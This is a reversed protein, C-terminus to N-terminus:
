GRCLAELAHDARERARNSAFRTRTERPGSGCLRDRLEDRQSPALRNIGASITPTADDSLEALYAVDLTAGNAARAINHRAVYAEPNMANWLLLTAFATLFLVIPLHGGSARRGRVFGAALLLFVVAMWGAFVSCALRLMTFGLAADYLSLRRLASAVIVMTLLAAATALVRVIRDAAGTHDSVNARVALLVLATISAVALLQFYGHRAYEAYTLGTARQIYADGRALATAQSVAFLAYVAVLAGLVMGLDSAALRPSLEPAPSVAARVRVLPVIALCTGALGLAVHTALDHGSVPLHFFSRFVGDASALLLTVALVVPAAVLMGRAATRARRRAEVSRAPANTAALTAVHLPSACATALAALCSWGIDVFGVMRVAPARELVTALVVLLAVAAVDLPVLWPSTRFTLWVAFITAAGLAVRASARRIPAAWMTGVVFLVLAISGSVTAAGQRVLLDFALGCTVVVCSVRGTPRSWLARRLAFDIDRGIDIDIDIHDDTM